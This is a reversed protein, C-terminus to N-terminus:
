EGRRVSYLAAISLNNMTEAYLSEKHQPPLLGWGGVWDERCYTGDVSWNQNLTNLAKRFDESAQEYQRYSFSLMGPNTSFVQAPTQQVVWPHDKIEEPVVVAQWTKKAREFLAAAGELAGMQLFIRGQRSWVECQVVAQWVPQVRVASAPHHKQAYAHTAKPIYEALRDLAQLAM